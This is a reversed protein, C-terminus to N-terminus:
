QSRPLLEGVMTFGNRGEIQKHGVGAPIIMVDGAQVEEQVAIASDDGGFQLKASGKFM